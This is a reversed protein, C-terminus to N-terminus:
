VPFSWLAMAYFKSMQDNTWPRRAFGIIELRDPLRGERNLEYLAPLLKRKTLDGTVGFIVFAVRDNKFDNSNM